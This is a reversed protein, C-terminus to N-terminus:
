DLECYDFGISDIFMEILCIDETADLLYFDFLDSTENSLSLSCFFIDFFARLHVFIYILVVRTKRKIFFDCPLDM